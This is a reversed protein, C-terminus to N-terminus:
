VSAVANVKKFEFLSSSNIGYVLTRLTAFFIRYFRAVVDFGVQRVSAVAMSVIIVAFNLDIITLVNTFFYIKKYIIIWCRLLLTLELLTNLNRVTQYREPYPDNM